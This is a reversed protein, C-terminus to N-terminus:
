YMRSGCSRRMMGRGMMGRQNVPSANENLYNFIAEKQDTEMSAFSPMYCPDRDLVMTFGNFNYRGIVNGLVPPLMGYNQQGVPQKDSPTVKHCSACNAYFLHEGNPKYDNPLEAMSNFQSEDLMLYSAVAKRQSEPLHSFSPMGNRGTELISLVKEKGLTKDVNKLSPIIPYQGSRDAGHCSACNNLFVDEGAIGNNNISVQKQTFGVLALISFVTTVVALANLLTKMQTYEKMLFLLVFSYGLKHL